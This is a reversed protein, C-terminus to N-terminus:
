IVAAVGPSHLDGILQVQALLSDFEVLVLDHLRKIQLAIGLRHQKGEFVVQDRNGKFIRKDGLPAEQPSAL